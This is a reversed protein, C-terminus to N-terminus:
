LWLPLLSGPGRNEICALLSDFCQGTGCHKVSWCLEVVTRATLDEAVQSSRSAEVLGCRLEICGFDDEYQLKQVLAFADCIAIQLGLIDEDVGFPVEFEYIKPKRLFYFVTPRKTYPFALYASLQLPFM